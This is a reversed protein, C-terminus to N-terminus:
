CLMLCARRIRIIVFLCVYAFMLFLMQCVLVVCSVAFRMLNMFLKSCAIYYCFFSAVCLCVVVCVCSVCLVCKYFHLVYCM